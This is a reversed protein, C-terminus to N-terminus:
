FVFFATQAVGFGLGTSLACIGGVVIFLKVITPRTTGAARMDIAAGVGEPLNSVFIAVLLAISIGDGTALGVGLVFQEPIGDLFSGLALGMGSDSEGRAGGDQSRADLLRSAGYYTLAGAALGLGVAWGAGENLGEEALSFSVASILAGAGFALVLGVLRQPWPRVPVRGLRGASGDHEM